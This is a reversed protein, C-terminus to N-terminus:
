QGARGSTKTFEAVLTTFSAGTSERVPVRPALSGDFSGTVPPLRGVIPPLFFFHPTCGSHAGGSLAFSPPPVLALQPAMADGGCGVVLVLGVLWGASVTLLSARRM